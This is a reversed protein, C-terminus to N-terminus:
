DGGRNKDGSNGPDCDVTPSEGPGTGGAHPDILQTDDGESGNGRGSNCKEKDGYQDQAASNSVTNLKQAKAPKSKFATKVIKSVSQPASSAQSMGGTAALAVLAIASLVAAVALRRGAGRVRHPGRVSGAVSAIYEDTPIPRSERLEHGIEDEVNRGM